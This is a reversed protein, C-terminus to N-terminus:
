DVFSRPLRNTFRVTCGNTWRLATRGNRPRTQRPIRHSPHACSIALRYRRRVMYAEGAPTTSNDPTVPRRLEGDAGDTPTALCCGTIRRCGGAEYPGPAADAQVRDSCRGCDSGITGRGSTTPRGIIATAALARCRTALRHPSRPCTM